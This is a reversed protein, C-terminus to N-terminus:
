LNKEYKFLRLKNTVQVEDIKQYGLKEYFHQNRFNLYPTYLTWNKTPLFKDEIMGLIKKGIGKNQHDMAIFLKSLRLRKEDLKRVDVGGVICNNLYITFHYFLNINSELKERTETVPSTEFDEYMSLDEAFCYKQINLLEDIEYLQTKSITVEM